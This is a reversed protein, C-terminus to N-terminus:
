SAHEAKKENELFEKIKDIHEVILKAKREGFSLMIRKGDKFVLIQKGKYEEQTIEM